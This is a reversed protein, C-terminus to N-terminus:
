DHFRVSIPEAVTVDKETRLYLRVGKKEVWFVGALSVPSVAKMVVIARRLVKFNGRRVEFMLVLRGTVM